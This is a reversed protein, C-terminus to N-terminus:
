SESSLCQGAFELFTPIYPGSKESLKSSKFIDKICNLAHVQSLSETSRDHVPKAAEQM